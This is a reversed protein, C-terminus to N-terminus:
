FPPINFKAEGNYMEQKYKGPLLDSSGWLATQFPTALLYLFPGGAGGLSQGPNGGQPSGRPKPAPLLQPPQPSAADSVHLLSYDGNTRIHM